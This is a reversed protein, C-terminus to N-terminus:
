TIMKNVRMVIERPLMHINNPSFEDQDSGPSLPNFVCYCVVFGPFSFTILLDFIGNNPGETKGVAKHSMFSVVQIQAM